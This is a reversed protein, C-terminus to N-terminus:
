RPPRDFHRDLSEQDLGTFEVLKLPSGQGAVVRVRGRPLGVREALLAELAANAKGAVPVAAVRVKLRDSSWGVIEDRSARATVKVGLRAARKAPKTM